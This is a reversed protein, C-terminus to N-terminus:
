EAPQRASAAEPQALASLAETELDYRYLGSKLAVLM